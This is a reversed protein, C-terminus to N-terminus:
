PATTFTGTYDTQFGGLKMSLVMREPDVTGTLGTCTYREYPVREGRMVMEPIIDTGSLTLTNGNKVYPVDPLIMESLVVPMKSSFSVDYMSIDLRGQDDLVYSTRLGEITFLADGIEIVRLEGVYAAEAPLPTEAQPKQCASLLLAGLAIISFLRNTKM